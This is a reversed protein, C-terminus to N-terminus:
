VARATWPDFLRMLNRIRAAFRVAAPGRYGMEQKMQGVMILVRQWTEVWDGLFREGESGEKRRQGGVGDNSASKSAEQKHM